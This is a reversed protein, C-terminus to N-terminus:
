SKAPPFPETKYTGDRQKTLMEVKGEAEELEKKCAESLAIGEEFLKLSEELPIDGSELKAVIAELKKLSQEFTPM